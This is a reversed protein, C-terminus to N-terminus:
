CGRAHASLFFFHFITRVCRNGAICTIVKGAIVGANSVPHIFKGPLGSGHAKLIKWWEDFTVKHLQAGLKEMANLKSLPAHDPVYVDCTVGFKRTCYALGQAFNGASATTVGNELSAPDICSVANCAGRM